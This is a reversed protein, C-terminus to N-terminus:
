SLKFFMYTYSYDQYYTHIKELVVRLKLPTDTSSSVLLQSKSYDLQWSKIVLDAVLQAYIQFYRFLDHLFIWSQWRMFVDLFRSQRFIIM